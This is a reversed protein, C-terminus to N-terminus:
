AECGPGELHVRLLPQIVAASPPPMALVSVSGTTGQYAATIDAAGFGRVTVIGARSVAAVVTNSSQWTARTTVNLMTGDSLTATAILASTQGVATLFTTGTITVSSVGSPGAPSSCGSVAAIVAFLVVAVVHKSQM